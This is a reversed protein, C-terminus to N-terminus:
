FDSFIKRQWIPKLNRYVPFFLLGSLEPSELWLFCHMAYTILEYDPYHRRVYDVLLAALVSLVVNLMQTYSTRKSFYAGLSQHPVLDKIWSNWSPGAISGFFFYYFFLFVM